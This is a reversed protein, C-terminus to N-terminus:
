KNNNITRDIERMDRRTAWLILGLTRHELVNARSAYFSQDGHM